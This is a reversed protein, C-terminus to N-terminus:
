VISALVIKEPLMQLAGQVLGQLLSQILMTGLPKYNFNCELAVTIPARGGRGQYIVGPILLNAFQSSNDLITLSVISPSEIESEKAIFNWKM